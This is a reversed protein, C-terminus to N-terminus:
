VLWCRSWFTEKHNIKMLERKSFSLKKRQHFTKLWLRYYILRGVKAPRVTRYGFAVSQESEMHERVHSRLSKSWHRLLIHWITSYLVTDLEPALYFFQQQQQRISEFTSMIASWHAMQLLYYSIRSSSQDFQRDLKDSQWALTSIM